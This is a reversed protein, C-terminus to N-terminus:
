LRAREIGEAGCLVGNRSGLDEVWVEDGRRVFRAHERSLSRVALKVDAHEARGVTLRAGDPLETVHVGGEYYFNLVMRGEGDGPDPLRVESTTGGESSSTMAPSGKVHPSFPTTYCRSM